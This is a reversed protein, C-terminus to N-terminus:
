MQAFSRFGEEIMEGPVPPLARLIVIGFIILILVLWVLVTTRSMLSM